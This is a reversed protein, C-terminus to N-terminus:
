HIGHWPVRSIIHQHLDLLPPPYPPPLSLVVRRDVRRTRREHFNERSLFPLPPLSPSELTLGGRWEFGPDGGSGFHVSVTQALGYLM